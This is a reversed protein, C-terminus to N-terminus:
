SPYEYISRQVGEGIAIISYFLAKLLYILCFQLNQM